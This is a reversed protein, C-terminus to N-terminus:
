EGEEKSGTGKERDEARETDEGKALRPQRLLKSTSIHIVAFM